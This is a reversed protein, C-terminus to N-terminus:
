GVGHLSWGGDVKFEGGTVYDSEDSALFLVMRAVHEPTGRAGLPITSCVWAEVEDFTLGRATAAATFMSDSMRSAISGPHVTNCRVRTGDQAGIVAFSKALHAVGAKSAGYAIAGATAMETVASSLLVVSGSGTRRMEPVVAMCALFSGTLNVEIVQAWDAVTTALGREHSGEIGACHVLVDLRGHTDVVHAVVRRWDDASTVDHALCGPGSALDSVHVTAGERALLAACAAGIGGAGGTVLAVKDEVRM